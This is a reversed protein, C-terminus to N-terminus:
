ADREVLMIQIQDAIDEIIDSIQSIGFIINRYYIKECLSLELSFIRAHLMKEIRDVRSEDARIDDLIHRDKQLGSFDNLVKEIAIYLNAIQVKTIKNIEIIDNKLESPISVNEWVIQHVLAQCRNAIKDTSQALSILRSRTAPLFSGGVADVTHRLKLDATNEFGDIEALISDIRAKDCDEEFLVTFFKEFSDFCSSVNKAHDYFCQSIKPNKKSFLLM